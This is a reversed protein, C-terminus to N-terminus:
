VNMMMSTIPQLASGAFGCTMRVRIELPLVGHVCYSTSIIYAKAYSQRIIKSVYGEHNSYVSVLTTLTFSLGNPDTVMLPVPVCPCVNDDSTLRVSASPTPANM